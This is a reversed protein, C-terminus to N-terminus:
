NNIYASQLFRSSEAEYRYASDLSITTNHQKAVAVPRGPLRRNLLESDCGAVFIFM